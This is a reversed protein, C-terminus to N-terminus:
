DPVLSFISTRSREVLYLYVRVSNKTLSIVKRNKYRLWSFRYRLSLCGCKDVVSGLGDSGSPHTLRHFESFRRPITPDSRSFLTCSFFLLLSPLFFPSKLFLIAIEAENKGSHIGSIRIGLYPRRDGGQGSGGKAVNERLNSIQYQHVHLDTQVM